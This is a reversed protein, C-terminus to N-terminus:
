YEKKLFDLFELTSFYAKDSNRYFFEFASKMFSKDNSVILDMSHLYTLQDIDILANTDIKQNPYKFPYLLSYAMGKCYNTFYPFRNPNTKWKEFIKNKDETTELHKNILVEASPVINENIFWDSFEYESMDRKKDKSYEPSFEERIETFIRRNDFSKLKEIHKEAQVQALDVDNINENTLLYNINGEIEKRELNPM